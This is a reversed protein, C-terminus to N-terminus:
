LDLERSVRVVFQDFSEGMVLGEVEMSERGEKALEYITWRAREALGKFATYNLRSGAFVSRGSPKQSQQPTNPKATM